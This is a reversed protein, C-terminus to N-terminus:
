AETVIDERIAPDVKEEEPKAEEPLNPAELPVPAPSASVTSDSTL